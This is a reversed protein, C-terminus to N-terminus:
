EVAEAEPDDVNETVTKTITAGLEQAVAAGRGAVPDPYYDSLSRNIATALDVLSSNKGSWTEGDFSLLEAGLEMEIRITQKM